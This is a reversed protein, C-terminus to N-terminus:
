RLTGLESPRGLCDYRNSGWTFVHGDTSIIQWPGAGRARSFLPMVTATVAGLRRRVANHYVGFSVKLVIVNLDYLDNM